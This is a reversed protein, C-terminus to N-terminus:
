KVAKIIRDIGNIDKIISISSYNSFIEKIDNAQNYGCEMYIVGGDKLHSIAENAIKKYFKLGDEGGDLALIPEFDRVEKDLTVIDNTKIYPPNSIIVDFDGVINSFMDSEIFVIEANNNKANSEAIQLAATSIDSALINAGTKLKISIAIVGSGTCLDLVDSSSNIEKCAIEVLEETEPRPILVNENVNIKYGYFETNGVVYALPKGTLRENVWKQIKEANKPSVTIESNLQSRKLGLAISILWEADCEDIGNEKFKNKTNVVLNTLKQATIFECEPENPDEDMKLVKTFSTIAVEIMDNDPERTTLRQLLLGPLKLPYVVWSDTKALGKLLEYSLGAVLPLLAIKIIVRLFKGWFGDNVFLNPFIANFICFVLISVMIVFFMFTTGCRNHVRSCKKVNEVTLEMGNEYCSITKHEAGHYMYTRRIDKLLTTLAIYAVFVIIKLIGEVLTFWFPFESQNLFLGTLFTPLVMFLFIALGVGLLLSITLIISMLNIKLKESMWKEFKSPEGEGYVEASRMMTQMGGIMSSVFNVVGRIVPISFFKNKKMAPQVRKAELRIIGDEDRVATAMSTAGRMMVGELVAQGGISTKKTKDKEKM